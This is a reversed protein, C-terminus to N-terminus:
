RHLPTRDGALWGRVTRNFAEPAQCMVWHGTDLGVVKCSPRAALAEAWGTSHFMFPKRTGYLYLMPCPPDFRARRRYGGHRGTWQIVYPYNMQAGIRRPEAPCRLWRAMARTMRDGVPGLGSAAALWLQYGAIMAKAGAGLGALHARSGADGIDVGVLREIRQPHRMALEYGFLCGWDHLMLVVPRDPSVRDIVGLLFTVTADLSLVRRQRGVDFGPLTFRVCRWEAAFAAVQADWLRWTDPWGHVMVLTDPGAGDVHIEVDDVQLAAAM